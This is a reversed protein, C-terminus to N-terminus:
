VRQPGCYTGLRGKSTNADVTTCFHRAGVPFCVNIKFVFKPPKLIFSSSNRIPPPLWLLPGLQKPHLKHSGLRCPWTRGARPMQTQSFQSTAEQSILVQAHPGRSDGVNGPQPGLPQALGPHGRLGLSGPTVFALGTGRARGGRRGTGQGSCLPPFLILQSVHPLTTKM